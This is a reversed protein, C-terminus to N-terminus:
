GSTLMKVLRALDSRAQRDVQHKILPEIFPNITIAVRYRVKTRAARPQLEFAIESTAAGTSVYAFRRPPELATVRCDVVRDEGGLQAILQFTSGVKLLGPSLNRVQRVNSWRPLGAIDTVAAFVRDIPQDIDAAYSFRITM